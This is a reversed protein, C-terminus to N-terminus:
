FIALIDVDTNSVDTALFKSHIVKPNLLVNDDYLIIIRLLVFRVTFLCESQLVLM